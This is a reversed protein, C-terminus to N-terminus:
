LSLIGREDRGVKPDPENYRFPWVVSRDELTVEVEELEEKSLMMRADALHMEEGRLRRKTPGIGQATM